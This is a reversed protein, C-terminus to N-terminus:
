RASGAVAHKRDPTPEVTPLEQRPPSAPPRPSRRFFYMGGGALLSLLALALLGFPIYWEALQAQNRLSKVKSAIAQLSAPTQKYQYSFLKTAPASSLATLAQGAAVAAPVNPYHGIVGQLTAVDKLVPKAGVTEVASVDVESGTTPEVAAKGNFSLVYQLPIPQAALQALTALDAPTIVPSVAALVADVDFGAAKLQPKLQDLTMSSPLPVLKNLQALYMPDLPAETVTATFNRLHLGAETVKPTVTDGQMTYTTGIENKYIPYTKDSSVHFPLNLRYTGSRNVVNSSDFAYARPDAVNKITRRDMVYVNTQVANIADGAKQTITEQVVVRSSSSAITKINRDITLPLETPTALPAATAPNVYLTFTGTYHPSVNLSSPYKVLAPVAVAWWLVAVGVFAASAIILLRPLRRKTKM